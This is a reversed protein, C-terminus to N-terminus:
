LVFEFMNHELVKGTLVKSGSIQISTPSANYENTFEVANVTGTGVKVISIDSNAISLAGANNDKAIVTVHYRTTDYTM